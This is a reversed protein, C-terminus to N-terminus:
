LIVNPFVMLGIINLNWTLTDVPLYNFKQNCRQVRIYHLLHWYKHRTNCKYRHTYKQGCLTFAKSISFQLMGNTAKNIKYIFCGTIKYDIEFRNENSSQSTDEILIHNILGTVDWITNKRWTSSSLQIGIKIHKFFLVCM